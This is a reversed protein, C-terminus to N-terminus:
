SPCSHHNNQCELTGKSLYSTHPDFSTTIATIYREVIDEADIQHMRRAFSSYRKRLRDQPDDKKKVTKNKDDDPKAHSEEDNADGRLVLLSYKIRKRWNDRAEADNKAFSLLDPDTIMEEDITFDHDEDILEVALDTREDVRQLFRDFVEFAALFEGKLM